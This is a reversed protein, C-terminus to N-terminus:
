ISFKLGWIRLPIARNNETGNGIANGFSISGDRAYIIERQPNYDNVTSTTRLANYFRHTEFFPICVIAPSIYSVSPNWILEVAFASYGTPLSVVQPSFASTPNANTWLLEFPSEDKTTIFSKNILM